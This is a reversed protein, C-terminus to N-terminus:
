FSSLCPMINLLSVKFLSIVSLCHLDVSFFRLAVSFSSPSLVSFLPFHPFSSLQLLFGYLFNTLIVLYLCRGEIHQRIYFWGFNIYFCHVVNYFYIYFVQWQRFKLIVWLYTGVSLFKLDYRVPLITRRPSINIELVEGLYHIFNIQKKFRVLINKRTSKCIGM